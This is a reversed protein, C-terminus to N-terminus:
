TEVHVTQKKQRDLESSIKLTLEMDVGVPPEETVVTKILTNSFLRLIAEKIFM